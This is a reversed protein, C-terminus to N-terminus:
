TPGLYNITPSIYMAAIVNFTTEPPIYGQTIVIATLYGQTIIM